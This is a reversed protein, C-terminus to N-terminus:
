CWNAPAAPVFVWNKKGRGVAFGPCDREVLFATIGRYGQSPDVTAFVIYRGAERGNSIWLKRGNLVYHDGCRARTQLAFADSGSGAESLSYAGVTHQGAEPLLCGTAGSHGLAARRQDGPYQARGGAGRRGRRGALNRGGRPLGYFFQRRSWRIDPIEIGMVGLEFLGPILAPDYQAEEDMRAVLPAIATQLM